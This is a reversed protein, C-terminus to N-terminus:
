GRPARGLRHRCSTARTLRPGSTLGKTFSVLFELAGDDNISIIFGGVNPAVIDFDALPFTSAGAVETTGSILRAQAPITVSRTVGHLTLDGVLTIDAADGSLVAAPIGVPATITFSATPFSDTELGESRM